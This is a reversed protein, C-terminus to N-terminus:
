APSPGRAVTAQEFAFALSLLREETFAGATFTVGVPEGAATRGAPVTVSPYGAAAAIGAGRNNVFVIADLSSEGLTRDIGETRALRRSRALAAVYAPDRLSGSTAEAALFLAQGYRLMTDPRAENYAILDSLSHVAVNPGLRGLYANLAPKFEHVLVELRGALERATTVEVPDVLEAGAARLQELAAEAVTLTGPDLNQWFPERAVGLRAGRLADARLGAIYDRPARGRQALTVPDAEDVGALAGLLLAADRVTRGLPGATDQTHSIPIVGSRSVLGVTPKVGVLANQSAPSLISGATETGVGLMTLNAAVAVASGSSSGGPHFTGPGYPNRVQGGRSSYGPPMHDSVFNAWETMNAKALIVAGAARLSTVLHADAAAYSGALALSGASTHLHDATDINDKLVVPVGHLPGRPGSLARERDLAAAVQLAHPNVELISLLGEPGTDLAAIREMYYFALEEASLRGDAMAAQILDVSAENWADPAM